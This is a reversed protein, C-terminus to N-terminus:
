WLREYSEYAAAAIADWSFREEVTRRANAAIRARRDSDSLLEIIAAGFESANERIIADHGDELGLGVCGVPTSVVAKRCAMAEMVKINTGASVVLPVAVVSARAYLPRLDEVFGHIVVRPDREQGALYSGAGPGGVVRLIARPLRKWVEPMVEDRLRRYGLLNPLHRFSGVYFVESPEAEADQPQFRAIDVGNAVVFTRAPDSGEALARTYDHDSMTWVGAFERFCARELTRWREAEAQQGLQEYLTFTLDHEVLLAREGAAKRFHAMHTYEIQVLNVGRGRRLEAVLAAMASSVHERVQKPLSLDRSAREDFDVVHVEAFVEHLKDYAIADNKERFTALLFDVRPALARCLNYIRVAGGHSLPFPLYPSVILV